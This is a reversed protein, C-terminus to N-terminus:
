FDTMKEYYPKIDTMEITNSLNLWFPIDSFLSLNRTLLGCCLMASGLIKWWNDDENLLLANHFPKIIGEIKAKLIYRSLDDPVYNHNIIILDGDRKVSVSIEPSLPKKDAYFLNFSFDNYLSKAIDLYPSHFGSFEYDIYLYENPNNECMVNGSHADGLGCVILEKNLKAPNLVETAQQILEVLPKYRKGNIIPILHLIDSFPVEDEGIQVKFNGYFKGLREGVLRDYYLEHIRSSSIREETVLGRLIDHSSNIYANMIDESKRLELEVFFDFSDKDIPMLRKRALIDGQYWPYSILNVKPDTFIPEQLNPFYSSVSVFGSIEAQFRADNLMEKFFAKKGNEFLAVGFNSNSSFPGSKIYERHRIMSDIKNKLQTQAFGRRTVSPTSQIFYKQLKGKPPTNNIKEFNDGIIARFKKNLKHSFDTLFRDSRVFIKSWDKELFDDKHSLNGIKLILKEQLVSLSSALSDHLIEGSLFVDSVVGLSYNDGITFIDSDGLVVLEDSTKQNVIGLLVSDGLFNKQRYLRRDKKSLINVFHPREDGFAENLKKSLIIKASVKQGFINVGSYRVGSAFNEKIPLLDRKSFIKEIKELKLIGAFEQNKETLLAILDEVSELIVLLDLDRIEQLSDFQEKKYSYSGGAIVGNKIGLCEIEKGISPLYDHN